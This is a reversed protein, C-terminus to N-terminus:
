RKQRLPEIIYLFGESSRLTSVSNLNSKQGPSWGIQHPNEHSEELGGPFHQFMINFYKMVIKEGSFIKVM